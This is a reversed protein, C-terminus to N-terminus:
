EKVEKTAIARWMKMRKQSEDYMNKWYDVLEDDGHKIRDSLLMGDILGNLALCASFLELDARKVIEKNKSLFPNLRSLAGRALSIRSYVKQLDLYTM